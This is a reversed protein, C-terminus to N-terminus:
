ALTDGLPACACQNGLQTHEIAVQELDPVGIPELRVM